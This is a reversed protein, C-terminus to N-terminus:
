DDWRNIQNMTDSAALAEAVFWPAPEGKGDDVLYGDREKCVRAKGYGVWVDPHEDAYRVAQWADTFQRRSM